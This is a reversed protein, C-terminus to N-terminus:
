WHGRYFILVVPGDAAVQSLRFSTDFPGPVVFDPATDGIALADPAHASFGYDNSRIDMAAPSRSSPKYKPFADALADGALIMLGLFFLVTRM